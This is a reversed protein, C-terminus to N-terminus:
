CYRYPAIQFEWSGLHKELENISKDLKAHVKVSTVETVKQFNDATSLINEMLNTLLWNTPQLQNLLRAVSPQNAKRTHDKSYEDTVNINLPGHM